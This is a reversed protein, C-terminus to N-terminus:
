EEPNPVFASVSLNFSTQYGGVYSQPNAAQQSAAQQQFYQQYDTQYQYM